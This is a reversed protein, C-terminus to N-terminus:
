GLLYKKLEKKILFVLDMPGNMKNLVLDGDGVITVEMFKNGLPKLEITNKSRGQTSTLFNIKSSQILKVLNYSVKGFGILAINM